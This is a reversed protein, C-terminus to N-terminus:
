TPDDQVVGRADRIQLIVRQENRQHIKVMQYLSLEDDLADYEATDLPITKHRFSWLQLIKAKCQNLTQRKTAHPMESKIIYYICQYLRDEMLRMEKRQSAEHQRSLVQLRRRIHRDLWLAVNPYYPKARQLEKWKDHLAIKFSEDRLMTPNMRWDRRVRWVNKSGMNISLIVAHHNTFPMPLIM